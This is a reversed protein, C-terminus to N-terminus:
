PLFRVVMEREIAVDFPVHSEVITGNGLWAIQGQQQLTGSAFARTVAFVRELVGWPGSYSVNM